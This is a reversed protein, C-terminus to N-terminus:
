AGGPPDDHRRRPTDRGLLQGPARPAALRLLNVLREDPYDAWDKPWDRLDIDRTGATFLRRRAGYRPPSQQRICLGNSVVV